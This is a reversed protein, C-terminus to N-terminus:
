AKLVAQRRVAEGDAEIHAGSGPLGGVVYVEVKQRPVVRGGRGGPESRHKRLRRSWVNM